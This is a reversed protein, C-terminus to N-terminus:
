YQASRKYGLFNIIDTGSRAWVKLRRLKLSPGFVARTGSKILLPDRSSWGTTDIGTASAGFICYIDISDAWITVAEWRIPFLTDIPATTITMTDQWTYYNGLVQAECDKVLFLSLALTIFLIIGLTRFM